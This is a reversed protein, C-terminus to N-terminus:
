GQDDPLIGATRAEALEAESIMGDADADAATFDAETLDPYAAKFEVMSLAGDGDVDLETMAYAAASAALIAAAALIKRTM